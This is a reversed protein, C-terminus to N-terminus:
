DGVGGSSGVARGALHADAAHRMALYGFVLASGITSGPISPLENRRRMTDRPARAAIVVDVGLDWETM